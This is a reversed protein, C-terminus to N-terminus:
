YGRAQRWAQRFRGYSSRKWDNSPTTSSRCGSAAVLSAALEPDDGFSRIGLAPNAPNTNLDSVPGYNINIGMAALELGIARGIRRALDPDRTAALAMNGAFATTGRGMAVLQGGEQDTAILLPPQGARRATWQLWSTLARVQDPSEYNYPRFLSCGGLRRTRIWEMMYAPPEDFGEFALMFKYGLLDSTMTM